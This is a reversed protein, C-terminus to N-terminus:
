DRGKLWEILKGSLFSACAMKKELSGVNNRKEM